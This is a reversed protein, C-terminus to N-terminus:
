GRAAPLTATKPPPPANGIRITLAAGAAARNANLLRAQLHFLTPSPAECLAIGILTLTSLPLNFSQRIPTSPEATVADPLVIVKTRYIRPVMWAGCAPTYSTTAVDLTRVGAPDIGVTRVAINFDLPFDLTAGAPAPVTRPHAPDSLDTVEFRLQAATAVPKPAPQCGALAAAALLYPLLIAPRGTM